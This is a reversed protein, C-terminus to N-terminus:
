ESGDEVTITISSKKDVSNEVSGLQILLAGQAYIPKRISKPDQLVTNSITDNYRM